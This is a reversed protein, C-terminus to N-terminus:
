PSDLGRDIRAVRHALWADMRESEDHGAQTLPRQADSAAELAAEGHRMIFVQM